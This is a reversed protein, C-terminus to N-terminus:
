DGHVSAEKEQRMRKEIVKAVAARIKEIPITPKGFVNPNIKSTPYPREASDTAGKKGTRSSHKHKKQGSATESDAGNEVLDALEDFVASVQRRSLGTRDALEKLILQKRPLESKALESKAM